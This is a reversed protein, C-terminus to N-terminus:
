FDARPHVRRHMAGRPPGVAKRFCAPTAGLYKIAKELAEASQFKVWVSAIGVNKPKMESGRLRIHLSEEPTITIICGADHRVQSVFNSFILGDSCHLLAKPDILAPSAAPRKTSIM